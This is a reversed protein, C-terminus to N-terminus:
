LAQVWQVCHLRRCGRGRKYIGCVQRKSHSPHAVAEIVAQPLDLQTVLNRFALDQTPGRRAFFSCM